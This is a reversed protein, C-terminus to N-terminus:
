FAPHYRHQWPTKSRIPKSAGIVSWLGTWLSSSEIRVTVSPLVEDEVQAEYRFDTLLVADRATVLVLANSGSFGTLYRINPLSSVVLGDLDASAIM